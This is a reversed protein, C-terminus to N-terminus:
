TLGVTHYYGQQFVITATELTLEAKRGAGYGTKTDDDVWQQPTYCLREMRLRALDQGESGAASLASFEPLGYDLMEGYSEDVLMTRLKHKDVDLEGPEFTIKWAPVEKSSGSQQQNNLWVVKELWSNKENRPHSMRMIVSENAGQRAHFGYLHEASGGHEGDLKFTYQGQLGGTKLKTNEHSNSNSLTVPANEGRDTFEPSMRFELIRYRKNRTVGSEIAVLDVKEFKYDVQDGKLELDGRPIQGEQGDEETKVAPLRTQDHADLAEYLYIYFRGQFGVRPTLQMAIRYGTINPSQYDKYKASVPM